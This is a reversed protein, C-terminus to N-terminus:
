ILALGLYWFLYDALYGAGLRLNQIVGEGGRSFLIPINSIFNTYCEKKTKNVSFFFKSFNHPTRILAWKLYAGM